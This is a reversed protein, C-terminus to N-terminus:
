SHLPKFNVFGWKMCKRHKTCVCECVCASVHVHMCMCACARVHACTCMFSNNKDSQLVQCNQPESLAGSSFLDLTEATSQQEGCGRSVRCTGYTIDM